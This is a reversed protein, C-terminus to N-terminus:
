HSAVSIAKQEDSLGKAFERTFVKMMIPKVMSRGYVEVNGGFSHVVNRGSVWSVAGHVTNEAVGNRRYEVLPQWNPMARAFNPAASEDSMPQITYASLRM